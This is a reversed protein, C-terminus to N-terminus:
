QRWRSPMTSLQARWIWRICLARSCIFTCSWLAMESTAPTVPRVDQPRDDVPFSVTVGQGAKTMPADLGGLLLHSLGELSGVALLVQKGELLGQFAVVEKLLLEQGAILREFAVNRLQGRYGIRWRYGSRAPVPALVLGVEIQALFQGADCSDIDALDLADIGESGLEMESHPMSM